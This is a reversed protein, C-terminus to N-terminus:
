LSLRFDALLLWDGIELSRQNVKFLPWVFVALSHHNDEGYSITLYRTNTFITKLPATLIIQIDIHCVVRYRFNM